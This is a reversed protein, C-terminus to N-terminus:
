IGCLLKIWNQTSEQKRAKIQLKSCKNRWQTSDQECCCNLSRHLSKITSVSVFNKWQISYRDLNEDCALICNKELSFVRLFLEAQTNVSCLFQLKVNLIKEAFTVLNAFVAPKTMSVSSIRFQFSWKQHLTTDLNQYQQCFNIFSFCSSINLNFDIRVIKLIPVDQKEPTAKNLSPTKLHFIVEGSM